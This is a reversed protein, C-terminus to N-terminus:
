WLFDPVIPDPKKNTESQDTIYDNWYTDNWSQIKENMAAASIKAYIETVQISSHGLFAQIVTLPVGAEIMHVAASHRFSHVSYREQQFMSPYEKKARTVYKKVIAEVCSITMQEHTQSSFLHRDKNKILNMRTMYNKLTESVAKSLKLNRVKRGKGLIHLQYCGDDYRLDKITIDCLEQARVATAYLIILLMHDRYGTRDTPDPLSFLIKMEESTFYSRDTAAVKKSPTRVIATQFCSAADIDRNQAYKAFSALAALRQNRTRDSCKREKQLWNLFDRITAQDLMTYTISNADINKEHYFYMVLLRFTAKYSKITNPSLGRDTVLYSNSWYNVQDMFSLSESSKRMQSYGGEYTGFIKM